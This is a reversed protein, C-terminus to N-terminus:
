RYITILWFGKFPLKGFISFLIPIQLYRCGPPPSRVQGSKPRPRAMSAEFVYGNRIGIKTLPIGSRIGFERIFYVLVKFRVSSDQFNTGNWIRFNYFDIDNSIGIHPFDIGKGTARGRVWFIRLAGGGGPGVYSIRSYFPQGSTIPYNTKDQLTYSSIKQLKDNWQRM